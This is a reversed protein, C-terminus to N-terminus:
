DTKKYKKLEDWVKEVRKSTKEISESNDIVFDAFKVKEEISMQSSLRLIADERSCGSRKMLRNIQDEPSVFVVIICDFFYQMGTELLLPVDSIVIAKPDKKEIEAICCRWEDFVFPHVIGNLINLKERDNFVISGLIERNITKDRKIIELGFYTVIEKWAPRDPEMVIHALKDFDLIYAGKKKFLGAVTSKGSAIGGTLGVSLM